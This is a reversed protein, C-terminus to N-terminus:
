RELFFIERMDEVRVVYRGTEKNRKKGNDRERLKRVDSKWM